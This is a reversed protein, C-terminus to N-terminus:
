SSGDLCFFVCPRTKFHSPKLGENSLADDCVSGEQSKKQICFHASPNSKKNGVPETVVESTGNDLETEM